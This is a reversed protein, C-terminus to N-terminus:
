LIKNEIQYENRKKTLTVNCFHVDLWKGQLLGNQAKKRILISKAVLFSPWRIIARSKLIKLGFDYSIKFNLDQAINHGLITIECALSIHNARNQPGVCM